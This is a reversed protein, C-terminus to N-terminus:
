AFRAAAAIAATEVRLVHRSLSVRLAGAATALDAEEATFGGEPGVLVIRRAAGGLALAEPAAGAPDALLLQVGRPVDAVVQQVTAPEAIELLVDRRCQKCAEIVVRELRTRASATAEAVGRATVLPVLRATGLETLKEVLWKQRDGKPLAVALSVEVRPPPAPPLLAGVDLVVRDRAITSVRASWSGGRGDFLTVEDGVRARLVRVLHRAEDGELCARGADPATTLHFRESM